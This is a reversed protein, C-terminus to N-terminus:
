SWPISIAGLWGTLGAYVALAFIAVAIIIATADRIKPPSAVGAGGHGYHAGPALPARKGHTQSVAVAMVAGAALGGLHGWLSVHGFFSFGVNVGLLVLPGALPQRRKKTLLLLMAFLGFGVTSAGAVPSLPAFIMCALAGGSACAVILAAMVVHGYEQEVERGLFFLLITNLILHAPSVHVLAATLVRWWEHYATVRGADFLLSWGVTSRPSALPEAINGSQIVTVAYTLCCAAIFWATVIWIKTRSRSPNLSWTM